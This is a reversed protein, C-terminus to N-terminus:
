KEETNKILQYFLVDLKPHETLQLDLTEIKEKTIQIREDVGPHTSLLNLIGSDTSISESKLTQFLDIMGSPNLNNDVLLQYGFQDAEREADRSYSLNDFQSYLGGVNKLMENSSGVLAKLVFQKSLNNILQQLLHRNQIHGIEHGILATLEEPTQMKDIIGTYIILYGGPLAMANVTESEIILPKIEYKTNLELNSIFTELIETKTSDITSTSELFAFYEVGLQEEYEIPINFAIQNRAFPIFLFNFGLIIGVILSIAGLYGTTGFQEFFQHPTNLFKFGTDFQKIQPLISIDNFTLKEYPLQEGKYFLLKNKQSELKVIEEYFWTLKILENENSVYSIELGNPTPSVEVDWIRSIKGNFYSGTFTM